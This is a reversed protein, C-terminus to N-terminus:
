SATRNEWVKRWGLLITFTMVGIIISVIVLATPLGYTDGVAGVGPELIATCLRWLLSDISLITARVPSPTQRNIINEITPSTASTLFGTVGFLAIGVWTQIGALAFVGFIVM